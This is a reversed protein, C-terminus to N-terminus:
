VGRRRMKDMEDDGPKRSNWRAPTWKAASAARRPAPSGPRVTLFVRKATESTGPFLGTNFRPM